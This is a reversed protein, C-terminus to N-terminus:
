GLGLESELTPVVRENGLDHHLIVMVHGLIISVMDAQKYTTSIVIYSEHYGVVDYLKIKNYKQM